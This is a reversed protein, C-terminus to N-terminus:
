DALHAIFLEGSDASTNIEEDLGTTGDIMSLNQAFFRESRKINHLDRALELKEDLHRIYIILGISM